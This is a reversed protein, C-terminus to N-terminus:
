VPQNGDLSCICIWSLILKKANKALFRQGEEYLHCASFCSLSYGDEAVTNKHNAASGIAPPQFRWTGDLRLWEIIRYLSQHAHRIAFSSFLFPLSSPLSGKDREPVRMWKKKNINKDASLSPFLHNKIGALAKGERSRHREADRLTDLKM